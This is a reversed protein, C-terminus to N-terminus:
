RKMEQLVVGDEKIEHLVILLTRIGVKMAQSQVYEGWDWKGKRDNRHFSNM